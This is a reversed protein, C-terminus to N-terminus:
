VSNNIAVPFWNAVVYKTNCFRPNLIIKKIMNM